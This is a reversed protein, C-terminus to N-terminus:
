LQSLSEARQQLTDRYAAIVDDISGYSAVRGQQLLLGRNCWRRLLDQSHSALVMISSSGVFQEMRQQAKALFRLIQFATNEM